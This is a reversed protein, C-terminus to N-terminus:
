VESFAKRIQNLDPEMMDWFGRLDDVHVTPGSSPNQLSICRQLIRQFDRVNNLEVLEGFKKLKKRILLQSNGSAVRIVDASSESLCVEEGADLLRTAEAVHAQLTRIVENTIQEYADGSQDPVVFDPVVFSYTTATKGNAVLTAHEYSIVRQLLSNNLSHKSHAHTGNSTGNSTGNRPSPTTTGNAGDSLSNRRTTPTSLSFAEFRKTLDMAVSGNPARGRSPSRYAAGYGHLTKSIGAYGIGPPTPLGGHGNLVDAAPRWQTRAERVDQM